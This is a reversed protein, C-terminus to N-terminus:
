QAGVPWNQNMQQVELTIGWEVGNSDRGALSSLFVCFRLPSFPLRCSAM